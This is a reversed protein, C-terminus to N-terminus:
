ISPCWGSIFILIRSLLLTPAIRTMSTCISPSYWWLRGFLPLRWRCETDRTLSLGIAAALTMHFYSAQSQRLPSTASTASRIQLVSHLNTLDDERHGAPNWGPRADPPSGGGAACRV